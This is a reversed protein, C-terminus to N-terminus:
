VTPKERQSRGIRSRLSGVLSGTRIRFVYTLFFIAAINFAIYVFMVGANRWHHHYYINFSAALFQDSTRTSCFQCNSTTDPNALYGGAMSIYPQMYKACSLGSPPSVTVYEVSRCNVETKGVAQGIIAELHYTYPSVHYMWKWWRMERFPQLVGCFPLVFSFLFVFLVAAIEQSAAISAVAQGITTYYSPFIITIMLYTFGARATPFGVTWYWCFFFLNSGLISFPISVLLQSTLLATWSYMRSPRERIEYVARMQLFPVQLQNALPVGIITAMFAAFLKNQTGQLTDKSKFFTFGIFLGAAINLMFKAMLYTPNRWHAHLDRRVLQIVQYFWSTSFESHFTAKVPPRRRGEDHMTELEQALDQSEKSKQWIQHWDTKVNATAGAGIVDLIFEAPNENESCHRSGNSEFYNILKASNHGIDGFYVTQGGKRLLLLRDFVHFLEASPQHITCLIAQGSMALSQLFNMIAWASQSDLGSTPEDLFLLLKPKAALEVGITTRKRNEVNLTGVIADAFDELGCMELCQEVYAEKEALPVAPPQRLKASFLLAERVTATAVHTDMQQCYGTQAQFDVPLPQGNVFQDGRVVGVNGTRQALVNLLTTKGAGSEGMLATLKGPAVYGTVDDLLKRVEGGSVPVVYDVHQWSFTDVSGQEGETKLRPPLPGRRSSDSSSGSEEVKEEDGDKLLVKSKAGRKFLTVNTHVALGSKFETFALLLFTMGIGFVLLIGFNRWVDSFYYGFSLEVYRDGNVTRQGPVSGVVTCVQNALSVGQYAPGQPVLQSCTGNLTHFENTILAEYAYRFPNIWTIWRLAGIMTPKPIIYGAYLAFALINLGGVAMAPAPDRFAAALTRFWSKMTLAMGVIFLYFTFFQAATKRLGVLFYLVVAFVILTLFTIPVDVLTMALAEIFPHYMASKQHRTVIPRQAFLAPIEAMTTLASFLLSFFLVGGRSFYAATNDQVQFFLTGMIVAQIISVMTKVVQVQRSGKLIQVRRRMVAGVQMWVSIVYPSKKRAMEGREAQASTKFAEVRQEKGVFESQYSSIDSRNLAGLPSSTFHKAFETSTRPPPHPLSPRITRGQPDTVAVLFDATTQRYAPEYGMGVFYERARDAPGFYALKGEYIACVKDFLAYLSEGAQYASLITTLNSIDTAIRLARVFELATSSDLGRTSNDWANLLSRTALAEAISVRKKEGGSVGKMMADGILTARAHRLGFITLLAETVGSVYEERAKKGGGMRPARTQCAFKITQEVTLSPFHIDDEPIYSLDGRYHSQILSPSLSDYHLSGTISHYSSHHNSLTKLFTTCGAGPHGLVLLMEGPRVVGEFGTLITRIPPHRGKQIAEIRRLPNLISGVTPQYTATAGLGTVQLDTFMVGLERPKSDSGEGKSFVTRLFQEVDFPGEEVDVNQDGEAHKDHTSAEHSLRTLTRHLEHVGSPDFHDIQVHPRSPSRESESAM